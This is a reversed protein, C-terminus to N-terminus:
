PRNPSPSHFDILKPLLSGIKCAFKNNITQLFPLYLSQFEVDLIAQTVTESCIIEDEALAVRTLAAATRYVAAMSM